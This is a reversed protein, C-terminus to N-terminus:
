PFELPNLRETIWDQAENLDAFIGAKPHSVRGFAAELHWKGANSGYEASLQVLVAVLRGDAWVLLGKQDDSDLSGVQAPQLQLSM